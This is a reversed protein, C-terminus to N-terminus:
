PLLEYLRVQFIKWDGSLTWLVEAYEDNALNQMVKTFSNGKKFTGTSILCLNETNLTTLMECTFDLSSKAPGMVRIFVGFNVNEDATVTADGDTGNCDTIEFGNVLPDVVWTIRGLTNNAGGSDQAFFIRAGNCANGALPDWGGPKAIVNFQFLKQGVNVIGPPNAVAATAVLAGLLISTCARVISTTRM